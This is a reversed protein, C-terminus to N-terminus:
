HYVIYTTYMYRNIYECLNLLLTHVHWYLIMSLADCKLYGVNLMEVVSNCIQVTNSHEKTHVSASNVSFHFYCNIESVGLFDFPRGKFYSDWSFFHIPFIDSPNTQWYLTPAIKM